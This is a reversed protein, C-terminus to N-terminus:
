GPDRRQEGPDAQRACGERIAAAAHVGAARPRRQPVQGTLVGRQRCVGGPGPGAPRARPRARRARRRRRHARGGAGAAPRVPVGGPGLDGRGGPRDRRPGPATGPRPPLRGERQGSEMGNAIVVAGRLGARERVTRLKRGTPYAAGGRGTLGSREVEGILAEGRLVPAGYREQHTRLDRVTVPPLVRPPGASGAARSLQAAAADDARETMEGTM